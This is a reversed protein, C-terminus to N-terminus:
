PPNPWAALAGLMACAHQIFFGDPRPPPWLAVTHGRPVGPALPPRACRHAGQYREAHTLRRDAAVIAEREPFREAVAALLGGATTDLFPNPGFDRPMPWM